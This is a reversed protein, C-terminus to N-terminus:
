QVESKGFSEIWVTVRLDREKESQTKKKKKREKM